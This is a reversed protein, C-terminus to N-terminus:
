ENDAGAPRFKIAYAIIGTDGDEHIKKVVAEVRIGTSATEPDLDTLEAIVRVGNDLKVLGLLIPAELRTDGPVSYIVSYSELVGTRPLEVTELETSGCYPCAARPPYHIRGCSKCQAGLFRYRPIRRRWWRSLVM